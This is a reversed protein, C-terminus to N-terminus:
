QQELTLNADTCDKLFEAIADAQISQSAFVFVEPSEKVRWMKVTQNRKSHYVEMKKAARRKRILNAKPNSM